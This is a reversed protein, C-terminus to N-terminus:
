ERSYRTFNALKNFGTKEYVRIAALNGERVGLGVKRIGLSYAQSVMGAILQTALGGGRDQTRTVVSSMVHLGSQWKVLAALAALENDENRVGGWFIEEPDGPRVSSDPADADIIENIEDFDALLEIKFGNDFTTAEWFQSSGGRKLDLFTESTSDALAVSQCRGDFYANAGYLQGYISEGSLVFSFSSLDRYAIVFNEEGLFYKAANRFGLAGEAWSKAELLDETSELM